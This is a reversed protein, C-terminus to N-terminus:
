LNKSKEKPKEELEEDLDDLIPDDLIWNRLPGSGNKRIM